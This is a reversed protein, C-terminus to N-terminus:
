KQNKKLAGTCPLISLYYGQSRHSWLWSLIQIHPVLCHVSPLNKAAESSAAEGFAKTWSPNSIRKEIVGMSTLYQVTTKTKLITILAKKMVSSSDDMGTVSAPPFDVFGDARIGDASRTSSGWTYCFVRLTSVKSFGTDSAPSNGKIPSSGVNTVYDIQLQILTSWITKSTM